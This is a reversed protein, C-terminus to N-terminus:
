GVARELADVFMAAVDFGTQETIERFCTPSTVNVETLWDGIADLGVLLLGREALVPGLATAIERDHPTLPQARGVGGAALNGRIETGQPIRALSYPVPEGGILLIRKDGDKIQPIYRQAMVTRAGNDSLMEITSGLNMGDERIRFVGTGGMGDLPKFIVDRHEGHFARLRAADRTVLTPATFRAFEGIAMKESHDRIARPKNFIRAGHREAIELLWTSTVYEMDFPPDKRMLVAGFTGLGRNEALEADYWQGPNTYDGVISFRRVTAEVGGGVYAVHRPECAYLVHGRRAAEAMMAYTTDKYIKFQPLPDAIFLIDM